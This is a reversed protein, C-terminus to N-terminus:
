CDRMPAFPRGTVDISAGGVPPDVFFRIRGHSFSPTSAPSDAATTQAFSTVPAAALLAAATALARLARLAHPRFRPM